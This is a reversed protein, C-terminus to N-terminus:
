MAAIQSIIRNVENMVLNAYDDVAYYPIEYSGEKLEVLRTFLTKDIKIIRDFQVILDKKFVSPQINQLRLIMRFVVLLKSILSVLSKRIRSKNNLNVLYYNRFKMIMLKLERLCQNKLDNYKIYYNEFVDAGYAIQYNWQMDLYEIAFIDRTREFEQRGVIIPLRNKGKVWKLINPRIRRFTDLSPNNVVIMLDVNSKIKELGFNAKSGYIVVSVLDSGIKERLGNILDDLRKM